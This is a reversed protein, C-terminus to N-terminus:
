VRPTGGSATRREVIESVFVDELSPAIQV